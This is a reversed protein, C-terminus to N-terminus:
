KEDVNFGAKQAAENVEDIFDDKKNVVIELKKGDKEMMIVLYDGAFFKVWIPLTLTYTVRAIFPSAIILLIYFLAKSLALVDDPQM